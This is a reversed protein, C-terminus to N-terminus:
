QRIAKSGTWRYYERFNKKKLVPEGNKDTKDGDAEAEETLRIIYGPRGGQETPFLLTEEHYFINADAVETKGPLPLLERGNWGFYFYDTPIGCAEGGLSVRFISHLWQLGMGGLLKGTAVSIGYNRVDFKKEDLLSLDASLAKVSMQWVSPSYAEEEGSGQEKVQEIGYLFCTGGPGASHGLALLGLWVYGEKSAGAPGYKVKLWPAYIGRVKDFGSQTGATLPTGCPLSDLVQGARNPEARVNAMRGLVRLTDGPQIYWINYEKNHEMQAKSGFTTALLL